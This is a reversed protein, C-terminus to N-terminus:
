KKFSFRDGPFPQRKEIERLSVGRIKRLVSPYPGLLDLHLKCDKVSKRVIHWRPVNVGEIVHALVGPPSLLSNREETRLLVCV